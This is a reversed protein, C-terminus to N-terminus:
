ICEWAVEEWTYVNGRGNTRPKSELPHYGAINFASLDDNETLWIETLLILHPFHKCKSLDVLLEHFHKRLSRINLGLCFGNKSPNNVTISQNEDLKM